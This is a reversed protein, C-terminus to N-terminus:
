LDSNVSSHALLLNAMLPCINIPLIRQSLPPDDADSSLM